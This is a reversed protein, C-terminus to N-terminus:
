SLHLHQLQEKLTLELKGFEKRLYGLEKPETVREENVRLVAQAMDRISSINREDKTQSIAKRLVKLIHVSVYVNGAAHFRITDFCFDLLRNFGHVKRIIRLNGKDDYRLDEPLTSRLVKILASGLWHICTIATHPDNVGPSLARIAIEAMQNIPFEIEQAPTRTLGTIICGSVEHQLSEDCRGKSYIAGTPEGEVIFDGAQYYLQIILDRSESIRMLSNNDMAQIYGSVPSRLPHCQYQQRKLEDTVTKIDRQKQHETQSPYYEEIAVVLDRYAAAIIHDAQISTSTHHIFYILFGLSALALVIAVSVALQPVFADDDGGSISLLVILSYAFTALFIGLVLQNGRDKIFNRLLRPGYQSSALTLAVLILSFAVGAITILSAAITSLIARAGDPSKSYVLWAPGEIFGSRDIDVLVFATVLGVLTMFSPLFWMSDKVAIWLKITLANM